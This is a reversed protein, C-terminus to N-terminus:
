SSSSKNLGAFQSSMADGIAKLKGLSAEFKAYQALLSARKKELRADADAVRAGMRASQEDIGSGRQDILGTLPAAVEALYTSVAGMRGALMARLDDPRSAYAADLRAADLSLTGDKQVTIGAAGLSTMDAPLAADAGLVQASLAGTVTRLLPDGALAGGAAGQQRVLARAKNYAEVFGKFAEATAGKFREVTLTGTRLPDAASLTLSVGPLADTITNSAREVPVGDIVVRADRAPQAPAGTLGLTTGALTGSVDSVTFASAAGAGTSTLVLRADSAGGTVVSARVGTSAALANVKDRVAALTDTDAVEVNQGNVAFTGAAGLAATSSVGAAGVTKQGAALREVVLPYTGPAAGAGATAAVLARGSADTGGATVSPADLPTGAKLADAATRLADLATRVDGLATRRNANAAVRAELRVAPRRDLTIIQDVLAKFDVGSTLGSISSIPDAV